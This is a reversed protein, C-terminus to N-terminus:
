TRPISPWVARTANRPLIGTPMSPMATRTEPVPVSDENQVQNLIEIVKQPYAGSISYHGTFDVYQKEYQSLLSVESIGNRFVNDCSTFLLCFILSLFFHLALKDRREQGRRFTHKAM